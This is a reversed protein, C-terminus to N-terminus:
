AIDCIENKEDHWMGHVDKLKEITNKKRQGSVRVYFYRTNRDGERLWQTRAHIAWYREEVLALKDLLNSENNSWISTIVDREEKEKNWCVDYRFWTRLDTNNDGPKSGLTDMLIAEHDSKSQRVIDVLALEELLKCFDEMSSRPKRRGGEKEANNLIANFDGALIWGENITDKVRRLMDWSLNRNNPDAQGYFGTLRLRMGDELCVLSDIHYKSYNQIMVTMGERWLLALGYEEWKCECCSMGGNEDLCDGSPERFRKRKNKFRGVSDRLLKHSRREVPSISVSGEELGQDKGKEDPQGSKDRINSRSEERDESLTTETPGRLWNGYQFNVENSVPGIAKGVDLATSRDMLELPVNYVRLWFPSMNFEYTNIEKGKVFPLISFLYNDFLWPTLNLIRSRDEVCGFKVIIFEDNLAVFDVEKYTIELTQALWRSLNKKSFKLRELLGNIDDMMWAEDNSSREEMVWGM